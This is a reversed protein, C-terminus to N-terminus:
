HFFILARRLHLVLADLASPLLDESLNKETFMRYQLENVSSGSKNEEYLYCVCHISCCPFEGFNIMDTLENIKNKLIQFPRIKRVHSFCATM